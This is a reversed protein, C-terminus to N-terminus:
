ASRAAEREAIIEAIVAIAIEWPAKGGLALGIPARLCAVRAPDIGRELLQAILQAGRRRAGMLGVYGAPSALALSLATLDMESDHTAIAIATATDCALDAFGDTLADRRYGVDPLPPPQSPGKPRLLTTEFGCQAGLGAIALASPDGGVVLLRWNPDYRRQVGQTRRHAVTGAPRCSRQWGDSFWDAARRQETLALLASVAPDDAPVYELQVQMQVGCQLRIDPWPSAQGYVLMRPQRDQVCQAAHTAVDAEICGGSLFGTAEQGAFVMQTGVPRPGGGELRAITALIAPCNEARARALAPRVDDVLGFMPWPNLPDDM